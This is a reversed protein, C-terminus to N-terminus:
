MGQLIKQKGTDYESQSILNQDLMSKLQEMQQQPTASSAAAPAQAQAQYYTDQDQREAMQGQQYAQNQQDQQRRAIGKGLMIGGVAAWGANNNDIFLSAHGFESPLPGGDEVTVAYSFAGNAYIPDTLIVGYSKMDGDLVSLVGNPPDDAFSDSGSDWKAVFKEPRTHGFVRYPRDSFFVIPGTEVLTLRGDKFGGSSANQVFLFSKVKSVDEHSPAGDASPQAAAPQAGLAFLTAIVFLKRM